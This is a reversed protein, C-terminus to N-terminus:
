HSTRMFTLSRRIVDCRDHETLLDVVEDPEMADELGWPIVMQDEDSFMNRLENKGAEDIAEPRKICLYM